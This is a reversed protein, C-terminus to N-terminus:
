ENIKRRKILMEKIINELKKNEEELDKTVKYPKAYEITISKKFLKYKGTICFPVIQANTKKAFSVAGYKFPLIINNTKNITGEPFIGIVDKNNLVEIAENVANKDHEKRNVSICGMSKFFLNGIKSDFLEKKSLTHVIRDPILIMFACDLNSTHNGCLIVGGDKPINEKGIVTPRYLIKFIPKLIFKITKYIIKNM